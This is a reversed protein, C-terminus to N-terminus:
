CKYKILLSSFISTNRAQFTCLESLKQLQKQLLFACSVFWKRPSAISILWHEFFFFMLIENIKFVCSKLACDHIQCAVKFIDDVSESSAIDETGKLLFKGFGELHTVLNRDFPSKITPRVAEINGALILKNIVFFEGQVLKLM